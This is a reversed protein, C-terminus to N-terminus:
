TVDNLCKEVQVWLGSNMNVSFVKYDYLNSNYECSKASVAKLNMSVYFFLELGFLKDSEHIHCYFKTYLLKKSMCINLMM